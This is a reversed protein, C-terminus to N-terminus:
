RWGGLLSYVAIAAWYVAQSYVLAAWLPWGPRNGLVIGVISACVVCVIIFAVDM